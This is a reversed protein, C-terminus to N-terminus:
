DVLEAKNFPIKGNGLEPSDDSVGYICSSTMSIKNKRMEPKILSLDQAIKYFPCIAPCGLLNPYNLCRVKNYVAFGFDILEEGREAM